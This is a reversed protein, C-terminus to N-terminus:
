GRASRSFRDALDGLVRGGIVSGVIGPMPDAAFLSNVLAGVAIGGIIGAIKWAWWPDPGPGPPAPWHRWPTGCWGGLAWILYMM